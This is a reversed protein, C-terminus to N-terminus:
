KDYVRIRGLNNPTIHTEPNFIKTIKWLINAGIKDVTNLQKVSNTLTYLDDTGDLNHRIQLDIVIGDETVLKIKNKTIENIEVTDSGDNIKFKKGLFNKYLLDSVRNGFNISQNFRGKNSAKTSANYLLDTSLENIMELNKSENVYEDFRKIKNEMKFTKNEEVKQPLGEHKTSAFDKVDGKSMGKTFKRKDGTKRREGDAIGKIKDALSQPLKDLKLSGNKYAYVMGMLRQQSKSTSKEENLM